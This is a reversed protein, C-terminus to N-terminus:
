QREKREKTLFKHKPPPPEIATIDRIAKLHSHIMQAPHHYLPCLHYIPCATECELKSINNCLHQFMDITNQLSDWETQTLQLTPKNFVIKM